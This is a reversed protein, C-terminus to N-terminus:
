IVGEDSLEHGAPDAADAEPAAPPVQAFARDAAPAPPPVAAHCPPPLGAAAPLPRCWSTPRPRPSSSSYLPGVRFRCMYLSRNYYAPPVPTPQALSRTLSALSVGGGVQVGHYNSPRKERKKPPRM